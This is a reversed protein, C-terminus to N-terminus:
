LDYTYMSDLDLYSDNADVISPHTPRHLIRQLVLTIRYLGEFCLTITTMYLVYSYDYILCLLLKSM